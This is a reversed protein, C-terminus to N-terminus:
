RQALERLALAIGLLTSLGGILALFRTFVQSFTITIKGRQGIQKQRWAEYHAVDKALNALNSRLETYDSLMGKVGLSVSGRIVILIEKLTDTHNDSQAELRKLSERILELEVPEKNSPPTKSM